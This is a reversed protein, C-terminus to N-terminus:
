VDLTGNVLVSEGIPRSEARATRVTKPAEDRGREQASASADKKGCGAVVLALSLCAVVLRNRM